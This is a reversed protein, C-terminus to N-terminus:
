RGTQRGIGFQDGAAVPHGDRFDIELLKESQVERGEEDQLRAVITRSKTDIVEGTSPYAYEGDISFTVWGPEDRLLVSAVEHPPMTTADFIHVRRNFSDDVWLEREDPTLGVGHSPCGHRAVPGAPFGTIEVRAVKKGTTLDGIEFGLLGDVNVYCRTGRGNVTFPRIVNGFPGVEGTVENSQLDAIRLTPSHLGALYAHKGDLGIMTNHSGANLSIRKIINGSVADIVHWHDKEFSPLYIVKGDPSIAMRDCGGEYPKEWLVRDTVLDLCSLTRTTDVYLRGTKASACIGKVNDPQGKADLGAFPIRKVFKHGHDMDFVLIGHGGYQLV